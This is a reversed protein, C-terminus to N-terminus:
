QLNLYHFIVYQVEVAFANMCYRIIRLGRSNVGLDIRCLNRKKEGSFFSQRSIYIWNGQFGMAPFFLTLWKNRLIFITLFLLWQGYLHTCELMEYPSFQPAFKCLCNHFHPLIGLDPCMCFIGFKRWFYSKIVRHM